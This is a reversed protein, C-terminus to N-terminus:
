SIIKLPYTFSDRIVKQKKEKKEVNSTNILNDTADQNDMMKEAKDFREQINKEEAELSKGLASRINGKSKAM